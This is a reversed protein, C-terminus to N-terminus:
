ESKKKLLIWKMLWIGDGRNIIKPAPTSISDVTKLEHPQRTVTVRGQQIFTPNGGVRSRRMLRGPDFSFIGWLFKRGPWCDHQKRLFSSSGFSDGVPLTGIFSYVIFCFFPSVWLIRTRYTLGYHSDDNGLHVSWHPQTVVVDYKKKSGVEWIVLHGNRVAAQVDKGSSLIQEIERIASQSLQIATRM